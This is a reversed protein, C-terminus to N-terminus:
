STRRHHRGIMICIAALVGLPGGLCKPKRTTPTPPFVLKLLKGKTKPGFFFFFGNWCIEEETVGFCRQGPLHGYKESVSGKLSFQGLSPLTHIYLHPPHERCFCLGYGPACTPADKAGAPLPSSPPASIKAATM